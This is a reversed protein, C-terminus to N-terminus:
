LCGYAFVYNCKYMHVHLYGYVYCTNIKTCKSYMYRTTWFHIVKITFLTILIIKIILISFTRKCICWSSARIILHLSASEFRGHLGSLRSSWNESASFLSSEVSLNYPIKSPDHRKGNILTIRLNVRVSEQKTAM